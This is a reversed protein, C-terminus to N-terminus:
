RRIKNFVKMFKTYQLHLAGLKLESTLLALNPLTGRERIGMTADIGLAVLYLHGEADVLTFPSCGAGLIVPTPHGM